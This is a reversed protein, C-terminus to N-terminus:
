RKAFKQQKKAEKDRRDRAKDFQEQAFNVGGDDYFTSM